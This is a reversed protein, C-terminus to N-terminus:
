QAFALSSHEGDDASFMMQGRDSRARWQEATRPMGRHVADDHYSLLAHIVAAHKRQELDRRAVESRDIRHYVFVGILVAAVCLLIVAVTNIVWLFHQYRVEHARQLAQEMYVRMGPEILHPAAAMGGAAAAVAAGTSTDRFASFTPAAHAARFDDHPMFSASLTPFVDHPM